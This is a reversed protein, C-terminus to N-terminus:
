YPFVGRKAPAVGAGVVAAKVAAVNPPMAAGDSASGAEIAVVVTADVIVARKLSPLKGYMDAATQDRTTYEFQVVAFVPNGKVGKVTPKDLRILSTGDPCDSFFQREKGAVSRDVIPQNNIDFYGGAVITGGTTNPVSDGTVFFPQYALKYARSSGDAFQATMTSAVTTTSMAAPDALSPAAMGGFSAATFAAAVPTSAPQNSTGGCAALLSAAAASGLPLMPAGAIIKLAKRRSYDLPQAMNKHDM